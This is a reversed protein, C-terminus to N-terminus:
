RGFIVGDYMNVIYQFTQIANRVRHFTRGSKTTTLVDGNVVIVTVICEATFFVVNSKSDKVRVLRPICPPRHNCRNSQMAHVSDNSYLSITETVQSYPM